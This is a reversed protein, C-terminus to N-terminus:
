IALHRIDEIREGRNLCIWFDDSFIASDDQPGRKASPDGATCQIYM